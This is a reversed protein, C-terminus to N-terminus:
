HIRLLRSDSLPLLNYISKENQIPETIQKDFTFIDFMFLERDYTCVINMIQKNIKDIKTQKFNYNNINIINDYIVTDIIFLLALVINHYNNYKIFLENILFKIILNVSSAPM